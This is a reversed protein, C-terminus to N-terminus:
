EPAIATVLVLVGFQPTDFYQMRGSQIQRNQKLAFVLYDSVSDSASEDAATSIEEGPLGPVGVSQPRRERLELDLYLHLFRSRRLQVSGDLQYFNNRLGAPPDDSALDTEMLEVPLHVPAGIIQDDHVRIPPYYDIRNQEWASYILPRYNSSSRLRRWATDMETGKDLLPKLDDPLDPREVPSLEIVRNELPEGQPSPQPNNDTVVKLDPHQSFSRLKDVESATAIVSLNRLVILEVRYAGSEALTASSLLLLVFPLLRKM